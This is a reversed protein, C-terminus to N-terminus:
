IKSPHLWMILISPFVQGSITHVSMDSPNVILQPIAMQNLLSVADTAANKQRAMPIYTSITSSIRQNSAEVVVEDLEQTRISDPEAFQARVLWPMCAFASIFLYKKM